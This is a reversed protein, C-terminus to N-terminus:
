YLIFTICKGWRKQDKLYERLDKRFFGVVKEQYWNIEGRRMSALIIGSGLIWM